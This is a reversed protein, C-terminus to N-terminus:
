GCSFNNNLRDVHENKSVLDTIMRQIVQEYLRINKNVIDTITKRENDKPKIFTVTM